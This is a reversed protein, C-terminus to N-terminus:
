PFFTPYKLRFSTISSDAFTPEKGVYDQDNEM